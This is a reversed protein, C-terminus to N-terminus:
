GYRATHPQGSEQSLLWAWLQDGQSFHWWENPHQRFGAASLVQRLQCRHRHIRQCIADSFPQFYDPHSRPSVEDIPSGMDVPQGDADILTIDVAAGTSHPPPTSPDDSPLAWFQYVEAWIAQQARDSLQEFVQGQQRALEHATYDVMFRQVAIPRYADFIQIQWGPQVQQLASQAQLLAAAVSARLWYPSRDGYPAGLVQYPHPTVVSIQELPLPVLPEGCEHIPISQYPKM